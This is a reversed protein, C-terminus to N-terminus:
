KNNDQKKKEKTWKSVDSRRNWHPLHHMVLGVCGKEREMILFGKFITLGRTFADIFMDKM